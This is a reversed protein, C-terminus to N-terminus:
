SAQEIAFTNGDPDRFWAVKGDPTAQIGKEDTVLPPDDYQEFTVGNATLEDVVRELDPVHWTALTGATKGASGPSPYVHLSTGQGCAYIRSDDGQEEEVALGLAQEYFRRSRVVDSVAVSARIPYSSLSMEETLRAPSRFNM